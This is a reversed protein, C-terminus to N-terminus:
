HVTRVNAFLHEECDSWIIKAGKVKLDVVITFSLESRNIEFKLLDQEMKLYKTPM